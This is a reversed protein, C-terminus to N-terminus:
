SIMGSFFGSIRLFKQIKLVQIGKQLCLFTGEVDYCRKKRWEKVVVLIWTDWFIVMLKLNNLNWTNAPNECFKNNFCCHQWIESLFQSFLLYNVTWNWIMLVSVIDYIAYLFFLSSITWTNLHFCFFILLRM